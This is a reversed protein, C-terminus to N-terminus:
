EPVHYRPVVPSGVPPKENELLMPLVSVQGGVAWHSLTPQLTAGANVVVIGGVVVVGAVVVVSILV